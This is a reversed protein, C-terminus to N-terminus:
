KNKIQKRNVHTIQKSILDNKNEVKNYPNCPLVTTIMKSLPGQHKYPSDTGSGVLSGNMKKDASSPPSPLNSNAPHIAIWHVRGTYGPINPTHATNTYRPQLTRVKTFPAFVAPPNDIDESNVSGTIGCYGPIHDMRPYPSIFTVPKKQGHFVRTQFRDWMGVTVQWIEPKPEYRKLTFHQSVPDPMKELTDEPHQLKPPLKIDWPVDGYARQTSSTYMCKQVSADRSCADVTVHQLAFKPFISSDHGSIVRPTVKMNSTWGGLKARLATDSRAVSNWKSGEKHFFHRFDDEDRAERPKYQTQSTVTGSPPATTCRIGQSTREWPDNHLPKVDIQDALCPITKGTGPRLDADAGASMFGSCPDILPVDDRHPNLCYGPMDPSTSHPNYKIFPYHTTVNSPDQFSPMSPRVAPGSTSTM